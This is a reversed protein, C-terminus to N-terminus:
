VFYTTNGDSIGRVSSGSRSKSNDADLYVYVNYTAFHGSLGALDVGVTSSTSSYLYGEFLRLDQDTGPTIQSHKDGSLSKPNSDLDRGWGVTVGAAVAGDDFFALEEGDDGYVTAGKGELNNWNGARAAAAGATGVVDADNEDATFNFSLIAFEEGSDFPASAQFTIRGNDGLTIDEALDNGGALITDDLTGGFVVDPGNGTILVDDGGSAPDTTRMNLPMGSADFLFQGNDGIVYDRETGGHDLADYDGSAILALTAALNSANVNSASLVTDDDVGAIVYDTGLGTAITDDGGNTPVTGRFEVITGANLVVEGNDGIVFDEAADGSGAIVTDNAPGALVIDTADGTTIVDNGGISVDSSVIRDLDAPDGNDVVFDFLGHDGIVLDAGVGTDITDGGFGGLVLDDGVGSDITDDGGILADRTLIIEALHEIGDTQNLPVDLPTLDPQSPLLVTREALGIGLRTILTGASDRYDVRGRDGFLVDNASGGTITDDDDGGFVILPLTSSSADVTDNGSETNLAFFGDTGASLSVTVDDAGGGTNVLTIPQFGGVPGMAGNVAMTDTGSGLSIELQEIGDYTLDGQMGFDTLTTETLTGSNTETDGTDDVNVVDYESGGILNLPGGINDLLGGIQPALTGVNVIDNGAQTDVTLTGNTGRINVVDDGSGTNLSTNGPPTGEITIENGGDGLGLILNEVTAYTIGEAMGLGTITSDTLGLTNPGIDGTDDVSLTDIDDNGIVTLLANISNVTGGTAPALSGVNILDNDSGADITTAADITQVNITDTSEETDIKTLGFTSLVYVTDGGAHTNLNTAGGHTSQITFDDGLPGLDINLTEVNDYVIGSLMDLGTITTVTLVGMNSDGDGRDDVNLTDSEGNGDITLLANIGDVNGGTAPAVSGVNITDIDDGANVTTAGDITQINVEDGDAGTNITTEDGTNFINVEDEGDETNITTQGGTTTVNVVDNDAATNVITTAGTDTINVIDIGAETDITTQGGTTTVNVTDGDVGTNITTEDGTNFINVEDEGDETNITTQGGTTTVNM